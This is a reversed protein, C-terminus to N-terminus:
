KLIKINFLKQIYQLIRKWLNVKEIEIPLNNPNEIEKRKFINDPNYKERLDEQYLRENETLISELEEKEEENECWYDLKLMALINITDELLNQEELPIDKKINQYYENDKEKAIFEIFKNPVKDIFESGLLQLIEYVESYAKKIEASM